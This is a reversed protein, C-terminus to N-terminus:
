RNKRGSNIHNRTKEIIQNTILVFGIGIVLGALIDTPFHIGAAVRAVASVLTILGLIIGLSRNYIYIATAIGIMFVTHHSPMGGDPSHPSLLQIGPLSVFPRQRLYLRSILESIMTAVGVPILLVFLGDIVGRVLFQSFAFPRIYQYSHFLSWMGGLLIVLYVLDNAAIAVLQQHSLAWSNLSHVLSTDIGTNAM